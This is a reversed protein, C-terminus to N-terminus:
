YFTSLIIHFEIIPIRYTKGVIIHPIKNDEIYRYLTRNSINVNKEKLIEQIEKISYFEKRILPVKLNTQPFNEIISNVKYLTQTQTLKKYNILNTERLKKLEYYDINLLKMVIKAEIYTFDKFDVLLRDSFKKGVFIFNSFNCSEIFKDIDINKKDQQVSNYIMSKSCNLITALQSHNVLM